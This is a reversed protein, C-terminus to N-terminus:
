QAATKNPPFNKALYKVIQDVEEPFIQAGRSVMDYVSREWEKDTKRSTVVKQLNHCTGCLEVVLQKGDSEPLMSKYDEQPWATRIPFILGVFLLSLFWVRQM